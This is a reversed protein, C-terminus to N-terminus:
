NVADRLNKGAKFKVAYGAPIELPERTQPNRGTRAKRETVSFKGFGALTVDEGGALAASIIGKDADFLSAVIRAAQAKAIDHQEALADIIDAKTM